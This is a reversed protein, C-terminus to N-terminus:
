EHYCKELLHNYAIYENFRARAFGMARISIAQMVIRVRGRVNVDIPTTDISKGIYELQRQLM